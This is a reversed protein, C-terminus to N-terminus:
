AREGGHTGLPRRAQGIHWGEGLETMGSELHKGPATQRRRRPCWAADNPAQVLPCVLAHAIGVSVPLVGRGVGVRAPPGGLPKGSHFNQPSTAPTFTFETSGESETMRERM